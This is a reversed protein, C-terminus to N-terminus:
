LSNLCGGPLMLAKWAASILSWVCRLEWNNRQNSLTELDAEIKRVGLDWQAVVVQSAASASYVSGTKYIEALARIQNAGSVRCHPLRLRWEFQNRDPHLLGISCDRLCHSIEEDDAVLWLLSLCSVAARLIPSQFRTRPPHEIMHM